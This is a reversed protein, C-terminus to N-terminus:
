CSIPGCGDGEHGVDNATHPAASILGSGASPTAVSNRPATNSAGPASLFSATNSRPRILDILLKSPVLGRFMYHFIM